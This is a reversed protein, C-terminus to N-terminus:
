ASKVKKGYLNQHTLRMAQLLSKATESTDLEFKQLDEITMYRVSPKRHKTARLTKARNGNQEKSLKEGRKQPKGSLFVSNEHRRWVTWM